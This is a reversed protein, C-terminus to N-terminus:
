KIFLSLPTFSHSIQSYGPDSLKPTRVTSFGNNLSDTPKYNSPLPSFTNKRDNSTELTLCEQLTQELDEDYNDDNSYNELKNLSISERLNRFSSLQETLSQQNSNPLTSSLMAKSGNTLPPSGMGTHGNPSFPTSNATNGNQSHSPNGPSVINAFVQKGARSITTAM